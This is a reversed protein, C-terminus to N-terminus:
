KKRLADIVISATIMNIMPEGYEDPTHPVRGLAELAANLGQQYSNAQAAVVASLGAARVEAVAAIHDDALVYWGSDDIAIVAQRDIIRLGYRQIDSM